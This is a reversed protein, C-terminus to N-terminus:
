QLIGMMEPLDTAYVEAGQSALFLSVIGTGSGLELIKKNKLNIKNEFHQKLLYKSLVM